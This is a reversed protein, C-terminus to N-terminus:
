QVPEEKEEPIEMSVGFQEIVKADVEFRRDVTCCHETNPPVNTQCYECFAPLTSLIRFNFHEHTTVKM